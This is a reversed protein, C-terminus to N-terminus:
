KAESLGRKLVFIIIFYRYKDRAITRSTAPELKKFADSPNLLHTGAEM